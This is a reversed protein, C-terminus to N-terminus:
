VSSFSCLYLYARLVILFEYRHCGHVVAVHIDIVVMDFVKIFGATRKTTAQHFVLWRLYITVDEVSIINTPPAKEALVADVTQSLRRSRNLTDNYELLLHRHSHTPFQTNFRLPVVERTCLKIDLVMVIVISLIFSQICHIHNILPFILLLRPFPQFPSNTVSVNSHTLIFYCELLGLPCICM